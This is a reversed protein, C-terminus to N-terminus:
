ARRAGRDNNYGTDPTPTCMGAEEAASISLSEGKVCLGHNM